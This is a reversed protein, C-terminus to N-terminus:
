KRIGRVFGAAGSLVGAGLALTGSVVDLGINIAGKGIRAAGGLANMAVTKAKSENKKETDGTDVSALIELVKQKQADDMSSDVGVLAAIRAIEVRTMQYTVEKKTDLIEPEGHGDPM